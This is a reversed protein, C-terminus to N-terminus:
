VVTAYGLLQVIKKQQEVPPNTGCENCFIEEPEPPLEGTFVIMKATDFVDVSKFVLEFCTSGCVTCKIEAKKM